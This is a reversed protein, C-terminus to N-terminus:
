LETISYYLWGRSTPLGSVLPRDATRFIAPPLLYKLHQMLIRQFYMAFVIFVDYKLSTILQRYNLTRWVCFWHLDYRSVNEELCHPSLWWAFLYRRYVIYLIKHMTSSFKLLTCYNMRLNKAPIDYNLANLEFEYNLTSRKTNLKFYSKSILNLYILHNVLNHLQLFFGPLINQANYILIKVM